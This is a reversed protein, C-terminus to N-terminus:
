LGEAVASSRGTLRPREAHRRAPADSRRRRHHRQRGLDILRQISKPDNVTYPVVKLGYQKQLTPVDPGHFIAPDEKKYYYDPDDTDTPQVTGQKPDHEQWNGVRRRGQGGTGASGSRPVGV